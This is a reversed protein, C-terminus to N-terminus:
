LSQGMVHYGCHEFYGQWEELTIAWLAKGIGEVLADRIGSSASRALLPEKAQQISARHPQVGALLLAALLYARM